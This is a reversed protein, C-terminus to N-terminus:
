LLDFCAIISTKQLNNYSIDKSVTERAANLPQTGAIFLFSKCMLLQVVRINMGYDASIIRPSFPPGLM